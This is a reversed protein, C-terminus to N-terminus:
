NILDTKRWEDKTPIVIQYKSFTHQLTVHDKIMSFKRDVKDAKAWIRNHEIEPNRPDPRSLCYTAMLATSEVTMGFTPQDLLMELVKTPTTRMAEIIIICAARLFHELKSWVWAIDLIGGVM